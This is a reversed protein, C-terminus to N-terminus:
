RTWISLMTVWTSYIHPQSAKGSMLTRRNESSSYKLALELIYDREEKLKAPLDDLIKTLYTMDDESLLTQGTTNNSNLLIETPGDGLTGVEKRQDLDLRM